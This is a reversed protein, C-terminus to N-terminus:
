REPEECDETPCSLFALCMVAARSWYATSIGMRSRTEPGLVPGGQSVAGIESGPGTHRPM